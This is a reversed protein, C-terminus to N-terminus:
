RRVVREGALPHLLGQPDHAPRGARLVAAVSLDRELVVLDAEAGPELRGRTPEGLVRAPTATAATVAEPLGVGADVLVKVARDMTLVSGALTGPAEALAIRAGERIVDLRGLRYRGPPLGTAAM